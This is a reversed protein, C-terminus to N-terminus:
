VRRAFQFRADDSPRRHSKPLGLPALMEMHTPMALRTLAALSEAIQSNRRPTSNAAFRLLWPLIRPLAAPRIALPGAPNLLWGPAKRWIGPKSLPAVEGPAILGCSAQIATEEGPSDRSLIATKRGERLLALACCVGVVGGGVVVVDASESM